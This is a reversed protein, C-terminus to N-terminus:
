KRLAKKKKQYLASLNAYKDRRQHFIYSHSQQSILLEKLFSLLKSKKENDCLSLFLKDLDDREKVSLASM